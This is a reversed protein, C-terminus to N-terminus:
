EMEGQELGMGGSSPEGQEELAVPDEEEPEVGEEEAQGDYDDEEEVQGDDDDEEELSSDDLWSMLCHTRLRAICAAEQPARPVFNALAM